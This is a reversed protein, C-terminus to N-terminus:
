SANEALFLQNEDFCKQCVFVFQKIILLEVRLMDINKKLLDEEHKKCAHCRIRTDPKRKIYSSM